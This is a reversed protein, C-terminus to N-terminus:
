AVKRLLDSANSAGAKALPLRIFMKTGMGERSEVDLRGNMGRVLERAEYAGIGFGDPKSSDFPKFLRTHQYEPSMGCGQDSVEICANVGDQRINLFVPSAAESADVANQVLHVLAQELAERNGVIMSPKSETVQVPHRNKYRAAVALLLENGSFAELKETTGPAYRSLRALLANLRETSNRLTVLMDARFAPKDAHIEANRSLLSLQSVLNKIDHMVFAIRRNFDDFRSAEALAEQGAHEALYSALQRGVVRMLDLDEWDLERANAPQALVVLGVLRDFHVLPVMAWARTEEILWAPIFKTVGQRNNGARVDDLNAIYGTQEFFAASGNDLALAPVDAAPWQWLAALFLDNEENPLLLMGAPSEAIEAAAKVVRQELPLANRDSQGMTQTFRLWEARYDYRHKFVHKALFVKIEARLRRSPLLLIAAISSATLFAIAALRGLEGGSLALWHTLTVMVILYMSIILLGVSRFAVSRSPRFQLHNRRQTAALAVLFAIAAVVVGRLSGMERPWVEALYAITNLNLEFGWFIALGTAPWRLALRADRSAGVYLNHVLVLSGSAVLLSLLLAFQGLARESQLSLPVSSLLVTGILKLLEVFAIALVVARIPTMSSHRGDWAFLRYTAFMWSLNRLSELGDLLTQFPVLVASSLAWLATLVLAVIIAPGAPALRKQKGSLWAAAVVAGLGGFILCLTDAIQWIDPALSSSM